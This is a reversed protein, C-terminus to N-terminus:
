GSQWAHLIGNVGKGRWGDDTPVALVYVNDGMFQAVTPATVQNGICAPLVQLDIKLCLTTHDQGLM